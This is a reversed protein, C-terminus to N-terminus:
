LLVLLTTCFIGVGRDLVLSGCSGDSVGVSCSGGSGAVVSSGEGVGGGGCYHNHFCCINHSHGDTVPQEGMAAGAAPGFSQSQQAQQMMMPKQAMVDSKKAEDDVLRKETVWDVPKKDEPDDIM